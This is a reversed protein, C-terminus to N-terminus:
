RKEPDLTWAAQGDPKSLPATTEVVGQVMGAPLGYMISLPSVSFEVVLVAFRATFVPAVIVMEAPEIKFTPVIV